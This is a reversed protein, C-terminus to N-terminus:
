TLKQKVVAAIRAGDARAGVESRVLGIVKGLNVDDGLQAIVKDATQTLEEDSMQQPLYEDLIAKESLEKSARDKEGARFKDGGLLWKKIEVELRQELM